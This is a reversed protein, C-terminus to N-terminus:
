SKGLRELGWRAAQRAPEPFFPNQADILCQFVQAAEKRHGREALRYALRIGDAGAGIREADRSAELARLQADVSPPAAIEALASRAASRLAPDGGALLAELLAAAGDDHLSGLAHALDIRAQGQAKALADRLARAAAPGGIAALARSAPGALEADLLQPAIDAVASERGVLQLQELLFRRPELKTEAGLATAIGREIAARQSEAGPRSAHTVLAHLAYRAAVTAKAGPEGVQSAIERVSSAGAALVADCLPAVETWTRAEAADRNDRPMRELLAAAAGSAPAESGTDIFTKTTM